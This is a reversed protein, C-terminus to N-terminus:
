LFELCDKWWTDFDSEGLVMADVSCAVPAIAIATELGKFRVDVEVWLMEIPTAALNAVAAGVAFAFALDKQKSNRNGIIRIVLTRGHIFDNTIEASVLSPDSHNMHFYKDVLGSIQADPIKALTLVPILVLVFLRLCTNM